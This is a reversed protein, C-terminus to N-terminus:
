AFSCSHVQAGDMLETGLVRRYPFVKAELLGVVSANHKHSAASFSSNGKEEM